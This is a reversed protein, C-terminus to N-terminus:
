SEGDGRRRIWDALLTDILLQEVHYALMPLIALGSYELAVALGVMLTKQSGAFAVAIQEPREIGLKGAAFFGIAWAAVHMTALLGLMFVIQLAMKAVQSELLRVQQGCYVAGVLVISLVGLQSFIRLSAAHRDAAQAAVPVLRLLQASVMPVVVLVLLKQSMQGFDIADSGQGALLSLWAPTIAFCALSTIVTVMLSVVENGGALRTWVAASALTCPVSAAIVTGVALDQPLLMSVVAALLPLVLANVMVGLLAPGPRRLAGVITDIRLPLAMAFLVAAIIGHRPISEAFGALQPAATAGIILVLLLVVLFWRRKLKERM